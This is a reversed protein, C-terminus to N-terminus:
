LEGRTGAAGWSFKSVYDYTSGSGSTIAGSLTVQAADLETPCATPTEPLDEDGDYVKVGDTVNVNM